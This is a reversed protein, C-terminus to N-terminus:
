NHIGPVELKLLIKELQELIKTQNNHIKLLYKNQKKVRDSTEQQKDNIVDLQLEISSVKESIESLDTRINYEESSSMQDDDSNIEDNRKIIYNAWLKDNISENSDDKTDVKISEDFNDNEAYQELHGKNIFISDEEPKSLVDPKWLVDPKTLAIANTREGFSIVTDGDEIWLYNDQSKSDVVGLDLVNDEQNEGFLYDLGEAIETKESSEITELSTFEGTDNTKKIKSTADSITRIEEEIKNFDIPNM